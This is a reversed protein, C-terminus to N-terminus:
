SFCEYIIDCMWFFFNRCNLLFTKLNELCNLKLLLFWKQYLRRFLILLHHRQLTPQARSFNCLVSINSYQYISCNVKRNERKQHRKKWFNGFLSLLASWIGEGKESFSIGELRGWEDSVNSSRQPGDDVESSRKGRRFRESVCVLNKKKKDTKVSLKRKWLLLKKKNSGSTSNWVTITRYCNWIPAAFPLLGLFYHGLLLSIKWTIKLGLSAAEMEM